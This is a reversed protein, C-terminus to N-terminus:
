GKVMFGLSYFGFGLGEFVVRGANGPLGHRPRM